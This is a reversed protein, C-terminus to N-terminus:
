WEVTRDEQWTLIANETLELENDGVVMCVYDWMEAIQNLGRAARIDSLATDVVAALCERRFEDIM